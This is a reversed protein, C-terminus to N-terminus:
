TIGVFVNKNLSVDSAVFLRSSMSVDSGVLLKMNLSADGNVFLNANLSTDKQVYLRTNMSVDGGLITNQLAYFNGGYSADQYVFLRNFMTVDGVFSASNSLVSLKDQVFATTALKQSNDSAVPTASYVYNKVYISNGFSADQAVFLKQNFSVDNRAIIPGSADLFGNIYSQRLINSVNSLDLWNSM